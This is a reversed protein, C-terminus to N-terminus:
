AIEGSRAAHELVHYDMIEVHRSPQESLLRHADERASGAQDVRVNRPDIVDVGGLRDQARRVPPHAHDTRAAPAAIAIILPDLCKGSTTHDAHAIHGLGHEFHPGVGASRCVPELIEEKIAIAIGIHRFHVM